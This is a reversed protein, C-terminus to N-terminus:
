YKYTTKGSKKIVEKAFDDEGEKKKPWNAERVEESVTPARPFEGRSWPQRNSSSKWRRM